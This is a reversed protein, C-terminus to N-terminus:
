TCWGPPPTSTQFDLVVKPAGQAPAPWLSPGVPDVLQQHLPPSLELPLDWATSQRRHLCRSHLAAPHLASGSSPAPAERCWPLWCVPTRNTFELEELAEARPFPHERCNNRGSPADKQLEQVM